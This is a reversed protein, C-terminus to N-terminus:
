KQRKPLVSLKGGGELTALKVDSPEAVQEMRIAEYLDEESMNARKMAKPDPRGDEIVTIPRAKVLWSLWGWHLTALAVIRHLIVLSLTAALGPFFAAKGTMLRSLNSGVILAVIIDLPSYQAFTRRGAIRIYFIGVMFLLLARLCMQFVNAGEDPGILQRIIEM